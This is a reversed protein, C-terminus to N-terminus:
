NKKQFAGSVKNLITDALESLPLTMEDGDSCLDDFSAIGDMNSYDLLPALQKMIEIKAGVVDNKEFCEKASKLMTMNEFVTPNRYKLIGKPTKIENMFGEM